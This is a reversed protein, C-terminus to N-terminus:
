NELLIISRASNILKLCQDTDLKVARVHETEMEKKDEGFYM